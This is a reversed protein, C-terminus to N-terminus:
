KPSEVPPTAPAPDKADGTKKDETTTTIKESGSPTTIVKQDKTETKQDCGVLGFTSVGVILASALFRKMNRQGELLFSLM